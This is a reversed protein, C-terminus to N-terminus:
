VRVRSSSFRLSSNSGRTEEVIGYDKLPLQMVDKEEEEPVPPPPFKRQDEVAM